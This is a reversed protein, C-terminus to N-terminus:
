EAHVPRDPMAAAVAACKWEPAALVEDFSGAEWANGWDRAAAECSLDRMMEKCLQVAVKQTGFAEKAHKVASKANPGWGNQVASLAKGFAPDSICATGRALAQTCQQLYQERERTEEATFKKKCPVEDDESDGTAAAAEEAPDHFGAEDHPEKWDDDSPEDKEAAKPEEKSRTPEKAERAQTETDSSAAPKPDKAKGECGFAVLAVIMLLHKKM